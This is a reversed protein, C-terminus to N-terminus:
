YIAVDAYDDGVATVITPIGNSRGSRFQGDVALEYLAPKLKSTIFLSLSAIILVLGFLLAAPIGFSM